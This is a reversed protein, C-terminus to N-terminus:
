SRPEDRREDNLTSLMDAIESSEAGAASRLGQVVGARNAAPHNQNLKWKGALDVISFEFGVILGLMKDIYPPPADAVEWPAARPAEHADTLRVVLARLWAADQVFRLRGRAHVVAYDWTPVVEGTERKSPYFSPSIYAQPGQFIALAESDTRYERWLPNARAVHGRLMGHPKPESLTEVPIHNAVLGSDCTAVLTALPRARMMAHLVDTRTEKFHAPLYM